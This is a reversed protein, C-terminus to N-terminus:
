KTVIQMKWRLQINTKVIHWGMSKLQNWRNIHVIEMLENSYDIADNTEWKQTNASNKTSRLMIQHYDLINNERKRNVCAVM